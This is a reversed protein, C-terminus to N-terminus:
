APIGWGAFSNVPGGTLGPQVSQSVLFSGDANLRKAYVTGGPPTLNLTMYYTFGLFSNHNEILNTGTPGDTALIAAFSADAIIFFFRPTM